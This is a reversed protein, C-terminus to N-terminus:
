RACNLAMYFLPSVGSSACGAAVEYILAQNEDGFENLLDDYIETFM